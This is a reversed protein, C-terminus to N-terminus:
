PLGKLFQKELGDIRDLLSAVIVGNIARDVDDRYIPGDTSEAIEDAMHQENIARCWYQLWNVYRKQMEQDTIV